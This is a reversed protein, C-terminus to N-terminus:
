VLDEYCIKQLIEPLDFVEVYLLDKILFGEVEFFLIGQKPIPEVAKVKIKEPISEPELFYAYDPYYVESSYPFEEESLNENSLLEEWNEKGKRFFVYEAM